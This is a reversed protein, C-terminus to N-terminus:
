RIAKSLEGLIMAVVAIVILVITMQILGGSLQIEAATAGVREYLPTIEASANSYTIGFISGLVAIGIGARLLIKPNTIANILPLIVAAGIAIYVLAKALGLLLDVDETNQYSIGAIVLVLVTIGLIAYLGFKSVLNYM